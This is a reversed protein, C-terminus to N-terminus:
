IAVMYYVTCLVRYMNVCHIYLIHVGHTRYINYVNRVTCVTYITSNYIYYMAFGCKATWMAFLFMFVCRCHITSMAGLVVNLLLGLDCQFSSHAAACAFTRRAVFDWPLSSMTLSSHRDRLRWTSMSDFNNVRILSAGCDLRMVAPVDFYVLLLKLVFVVVSLM